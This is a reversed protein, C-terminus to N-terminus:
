FPRAKGTTSAPGGCGDSLTENGYMSLALHTQAAPLYGCQFCHPLGRQTGWTHLPFTVALASSSEQSTSISDKIGNMPSPLAPCLSCLPATVYHVGVLPWPWLAVGCMFAGPPPCTSCLPQSLLRLGRTATSDKFIPFREMPAKVLDTPLM